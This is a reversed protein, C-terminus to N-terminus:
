RAAYSLMYCTQSCIYTKICIWPDHTRDRSPGMIEDLDTMFDNKRGNEERESIWSPNNDTVLSLIHVFYKDVALCAKFYRLIHVQGADCFNNAYISFFINILM